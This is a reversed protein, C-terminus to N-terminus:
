SINLQRYTDLGLGALEENQICILMMGEDVAVVIPMPRSRSDGASTVLVSHTHVQQTRMKSTL